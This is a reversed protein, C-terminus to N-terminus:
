PCSSPIPFYLPVSDGFLGTDNGFHDFSTTCSDMVLSGGQYGRMRIALTDKDIWFPNLFQISPPDQDTPCTVSSQALTIGAGDRVLYSISDIGASTCAPSAYPTYSTGNWGYLVPFLELNGPIGPVFANAVSDSGAFVDFGVAGSSYLAVSVGNRFGTVNVWYSGPAFNGVNVGDVGSQSCPVVNTTGDSFDLQVTDVGAEACNLPQFTGTWDFHQFTWYVNVGGWSSGSICGTGFVAAALLAIRKM